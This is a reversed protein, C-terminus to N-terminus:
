KLETFIGKIFLILPRGIYLIGFLITFFILTIRRIDNDQYFTIGDKKTQYLNLDASLAKVEEQKQIDDNDYANIEIFHKLDYPNNIGFQKLSNTSFKEYFSSVWVDAAKQKLLREWYTQINNDFEDLNFTKRSEDWFNGRIAKKAERKASKEAILIQTNQIDTILSKRRLQNTINSGILFLLCLSITSIFIIFTVLERKAKRKYISTELDNM